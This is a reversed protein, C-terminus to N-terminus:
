LCIEAVRIATMDLFNLISSLIDMTMETFGNRAIKCAVLLLAVASFYVSLRKDIKTLGNAWYAFSRANFSSLPVFVAIFLESIIFSPFDHLLLTNLRWCVIESVADRLKM